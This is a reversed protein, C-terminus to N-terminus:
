AVTDSAWRDLVVRIAGTLTSKGANDPGVV